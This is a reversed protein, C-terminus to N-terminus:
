LYASCQFRVIDIRLPINMRRKMFGVFQNGPFDFLHLHLVAIKRKSGDATRAAVTFTRINELFKCSLYQMRGMNVVTRSDTMCRCQLPHTRDDTFTRCGIWKPINMFRLEHDHDTGIRGFPMRNYRVFNYRGNFFARSKGYKVDTSNRKGFTRFVICDDRKFRVQHHQIHHCMCNDRFFQVIGRKDFFAGFIKLLVFCFYQSIRIGIRFKKLFDATIFIQRLHDFFYRSFVSRFLRNYQPPQPDRFM